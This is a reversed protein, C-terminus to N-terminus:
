WDSDAIQIQLKSESDAIQMRIQVYSGMMEWRKEDGAGKKM